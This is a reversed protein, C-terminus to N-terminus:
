DDAFAALITWNLLEVGYSFHDDGSARFWPGLAFAPSEWGQRSSGHLSGLLRHEITQPRRRWFAVIRSDTGARTPARRRAPLRVKLAAFRIRELSVPDAGECLPLNSGCEAVLLREAQARHPGGFRM